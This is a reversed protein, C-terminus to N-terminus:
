KCDGYSEGSDAEFSVPLDSCWSPTQLMIKGMFHVAEEVYNKPVVAVIEDHVTLCVKHRKTPTDLKRFEQDIKAMQDFVVIRALAQVVNEIVKGGYIKNPGYRSDYLFENGSKRLNPYNIFMGNPLWIKNGTCKLKIAEGLEYEHGAIMSELAEQGQKWLKAIYPYSDRYLKVVRQAESLPLDVSIGAVGIKLTGKFKEAGMGYGLGLICTKGVFRETPHTEKQVSYGYVESAFKSYIDVNKRFDEVLSTEGALWAVVRAEIQASDSAVLLHGKPSKISKRLEGGRPLNQLNIKDGGSARGTHAGYYNLMIPLPGRQSIGIFSATRTEELTSKIGLRASVVAQVREDEHDLLAKFAQDTKGFAYAEKGTRASIKTPPEVNLKKLVEAFQPNSMLMKRVIEEKTAGELRQEIMDVAIDQNASFLRDMLLEKKKQVNILHTELKGEDLELVPDTFMRVMLDIIYLEKKPIDNKLINFLQYTLQTDNKCYNGYQELDVSTFDVRRKGLANIVEKGKKGINYFEALAALSGGVSLGTIPRSMSLTDLYFKPKIGFHWNLIAGDFATNHCLLYYDQWSLASLWQKTEEMSGSFWDVPYDDVKVAVGIVEFREDRIYSETTLKKLSYDKDYYTEM